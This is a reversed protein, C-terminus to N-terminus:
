PAICHPWIRPWELVLSKIKCPQIKKEPELGGVGIGVDQLRRLVVSLPKREGVRLDLQEVLRHGHLPSPVDLPVNVEVVGVVIVVVVGAVVVVVEVIFLEDFQKAGVDFSFLHPLLNSSIWLNGVKKGQEKSDEFSWGNEKERYLVRNVGM